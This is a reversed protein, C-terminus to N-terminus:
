FALFLLVMWLSLLKWWKPGAGPWAVARLPTLNDSALTVGRLSLGALRTLSISPARLFGGGLFWEKIHITLGDPQWHVFANPPVFITSHRGRKPASGRERVKPQRESTEPPRLIHVYRDIYIYICIHINMYIYVCIYIYLSLSISM